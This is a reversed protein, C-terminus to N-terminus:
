GGRVRRLATFPGPDARGRPLFHRYLISITYFFRIFFTNEPFYGLNMIIFQNINGHANKM